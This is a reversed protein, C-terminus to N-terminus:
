RFTHLFNVLSLFLAPDSIYLQRPDDYLMELAVSLMETHAFFGPRQDYVKGMYTTPFRGAVFWETVEYGPLNRTFTDIARKTRERIGWDGATGFSAEILHALEHVVIRAQHAANLYITNEDYGGRENPRLLIWRLTMARPGVREEKLAPVIANLFKVGREIEVNLADPLQDRGRDMLVSTGVHVNLGNARLQDHIVKRVEEHARGRALERSLLTATHAQRLAQREIFAAALSQTLETARAVRQEVLEAPWQFLPGVERRLVREFGQQTRRVMDGQISPRQAVSLGRELQVMMDLADARLQSDMKSYVGGPGTVGFVDDFVQQELAYVRAKAAEYAPSPVSEGPPAASFVERAWAEPDERYQAVM